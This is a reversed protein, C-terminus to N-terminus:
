HNLVVITRGALDEGAFYNVAALYRGEPDLDSWSATVTYEGGPAADISDPTVTLGSAVEPLAWTHVSVEVTEVPASWLDVYIVYTQGPELDLVEDSSANSTEDYLALSGDSDRTYAYLDLDTGAEYDADVTAVRGTVADAPVTFEFAKTQEREPPSDRPFTSKDAGSLTLTEVESAVPGSATIELPAEIGTRVGIEISGEPGSVLVEQPAAIDKYRVAIPSHVEHGYWDRWTLSGFSWEGVAADTRTVTLTYTMSAGPAVRLWARDVTVEFGAPAEIEPVYFGYRDDVNTVTRTITQVGVLDNVAISPYNLDSPDIAGHEAENAQCTAGEDLQQFQGIACGYGIWDDVGSDYVLGPDFM